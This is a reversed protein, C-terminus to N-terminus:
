NEERPSGETATVTATLRGTRLRATVVDGARVLAADTVVRGDPGHLVAYGRDLVALPSMAALRASLIDVRATERRIRDRANDALD